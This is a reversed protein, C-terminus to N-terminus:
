ASGFITLCSLSKLNNLKMRGRSWVREHGNEMGRKGGVVEALWDTASNDKQCGGEKTHDVKSGPACLFVRVFVMSGKRAKREKRYISSWDAWGRV